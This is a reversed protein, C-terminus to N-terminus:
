DLRTRVPKNVIQLLVSVTNHGEPRGKGAASLPGRGQLGGGTGSWRHKNRGDPGSRFRLTERLAAEM